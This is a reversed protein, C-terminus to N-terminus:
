SIVVVDMGCDGGLKLHKYERKDVSSTEIVNMMNKNNLTEGDEEVTDNTM